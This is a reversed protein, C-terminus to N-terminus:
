QSCLIRRRYHRSGNARAPPRFRFRPESQHDWEAHLVERGKLAAWTNDAVVAVGTAIGSKIPVVHRVGPVALAKAEDFRILKGGLYPCREMSAYLMGPLRVDLGYQATGTVIAKGDSRKVRTGILRFDKAAKLPPKDPVKQKAAREALAGYTLSRGSAEHTVSGERAHCSAPEVSWQEAAAAILMERCHRPTACPRILEQRAAVAVPACAYEKVGGPMAQELRVQSWSAELEELLMIPLTTRIGQGRSRTMWLRVVNDSTISIYASPEFAAAAASAFASPVELWIVLGTGAVASTKLFERRSARM